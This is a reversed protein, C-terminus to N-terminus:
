CAIHWIKWKVRSIWSMKKAASQKEPIPLGDKDIGTVYSIDLSLEPYGYGKTGIVRWQCDLFIVVEPVLLAQLTWGGEFWVSKYFELKSKQWVRYKDEIMHVEDLYGYCMEADRYSAYM